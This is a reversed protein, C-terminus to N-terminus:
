RPIAANCEMVGDIERLLPKIGIERSAGSKRELPQAFRTCSFFETVANQSQGPSFPDPKKQGVCLRKGEFMVSRRVQTMRKCVPVEPLQPAVEAWLM